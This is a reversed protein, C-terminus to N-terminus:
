LPLATSSARLSPGLSSKQLSTFLFTFSYCLQVEVVLVRSWWWQERATGICRGAQFPTQSATLHPPHHAGPNGAGEERGALVSVHKFCSVPAAKYSHDKLFKGWDFGLVLAASLSSNFLPARLDPLLWELCSAGSSGPSAPGKGM